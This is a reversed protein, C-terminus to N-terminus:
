TREDPNREAALDAVTLRRDRLDRLVAPLDAVPVRVQETTDRDRVTATDDERTREDLTVCYPTGVEDQRRYRRGISGGDDYEVPLDARRCEEALTRARDAVDDTLPLVAALTPAVAPDLALYTRREGDVVDARLSHALVAYVVRDIGFAPEAVHPRVQEGYETVTEVSVDVHDTSVTVRDSEADVTPHDGDPDTRPRDGEADTTSRDESEVPIAVTVTDADFAAPNERALAELAEVVAPARDGYEPGLASMDPDVRVREGTRPEDYERFLTYSEDSAAAHKALDNDARDAVGALEIWEGDVEAEVDWCEEAYHALEDPRHERCRLRHPAVGVAELWERAVGLYYALWPDAVVDEDLAEHVTAEVYDPDVPDDPAEREARRQREVPYLRLTADAVTAMPADDREPDHFTQLEAMTLERLRVIARRPSIENRYGRGVQAVGFPTEERAYEALRPFEVLTGQATEPRLYGPRADGPGIATEFMLAFPEVPQGALSASCDPCALDHTAVLDEVQVPDMGEADSAHTHDEVLHDARHRRDCAPCAVLLDDFSDLHGSAAFVPEPVVTPSEVEHNGERVVFRDRWAAEVNRKLAAGVPGYTYFGAAGGHATAAPFYLGRRRALESLEAHDVPAPDADSTSDPDVEFESAPDSDADEDITRDTRDHTSESPNQPATM